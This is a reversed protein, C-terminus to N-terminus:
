LKLFGVLRLWGMFFQCHMTLRTALQNTCIKGTSIYFYLRVSLYFYLFIALRFMSNNSTPQPQDLFFFFYTDSMGPHVSTFSECMGPHVCKLSGCM